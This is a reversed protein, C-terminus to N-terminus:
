PLEGPEPNVFYPPALGPNLQAAGVVPSFVMLSLIEFLM